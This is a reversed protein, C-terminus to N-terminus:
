DGKAFVGMKGSRYRMGYLMTFDKVLNDDKYRVIALGDPHHAFWDDLDAINCDEVTKELRALFGLEAHYNQAYALDRGPHQQIIAVIPQLDYNKFITQAAIGQGVVLLGIMVAVTVALVRNYLEQLCLVLVLVLGPLLPILYHPQKGRILSFMVFVPVMWCLMFRISQETLMDKNFRKLGRWFAPFFVWPMLMGVLFPLYFYVPHVHAASFNGTVRGATQNWVLWFAFDNNAAQLVPVLWFLVPIASVLVIVLCHGYWASPRSFDKIWLPALLLVPLVHLYAVPGKTLVGLGIFVGILITYRWARTRAFHIVNILALLVFACLTFDFMVLTGYILFPVSAVMMMWVRHRDRALDPLLLRALVGTLYVCGLTALVPPILGAWRSVGLGAWALNILWFLMPPKHHYPEFNMTLPKLWGHHSLMEWAVSMYRTEDIPLLPRFFVAALYLALMVGPLWLNKVINKANPPITM